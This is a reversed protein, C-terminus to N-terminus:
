RPEELTAVDEQLELLINDPDDDLLADVDPCPALQPVYEGKLVVEPASPRSSFLRHDRTCVQSVEM